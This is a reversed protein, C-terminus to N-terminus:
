VLWDKLDKKALGRFEEESRNPNKLYGSYYLPFNTKILEDGERLLEDISKKKYEEAKTREKEALENYKDKFAKIINDNLDKGTYKDYHEIIYRISEDTFEKKSKRLDYIEEIIGHVYLYQVGQAFGERTKNIGKDRATNFSRIFLSEDQPKIFETVFGYLNIDYFTNGNPYDINFGLKKIDTTCRILKAKNLKTDDSARM